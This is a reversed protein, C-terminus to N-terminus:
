FPLKATKPLLNVEEAEERLKQKHEQSILDSVTEYELKNEECYYLIADMISMNTKKVISKIKNNFDVRTKMKLMKLEDDTLKKSKM